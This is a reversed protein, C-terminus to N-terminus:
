RWDHLYITLEPLPFCELAAFLANGPEAEQSTIGPICFLRPPPQWPGRTHLWFAENPLNKKASTSQLMVAHSPAVVGLVEQLSQLGMGQLPGWGRFHV